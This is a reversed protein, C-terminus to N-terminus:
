SNQLPAPPHKMNSAIAFLPFWLIWIESLGPWHDQSLKHYIPLIMTQNWPNSALIIAFVLTLSFSLTPFQFARLNQDYLFIVETSKPFLTLLWSTLPYLLPPTLITQPKHSIQWTRSLYTFPLGQSIQKLISYSDQQINIIIYQYQYPLCLVGNTLFSFLFSVASSQPYPHKLM